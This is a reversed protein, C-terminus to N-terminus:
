GMIVVGELLRVVEVHSLMGPSSGTTGRVAGDTFRDPIGGGRVLGRWVPTSRGVLMPSAGGSVGTISGAFTSSGFVSSPSALALRARMSAFAYLFPRRQRYLLPPRVMRQLRM